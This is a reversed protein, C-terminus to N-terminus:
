AAAGQLQEIAKARSARKQSTLGPIMSKFAQFADDGRATWIQKFLRETQAIGQPSSRHIEAQLEKAKRQIARESPTPGNALQRRLQYWDCDMYQRRPGKAGEPRCRRLWYDFHEDSWHLDAFGAPWKLDAPAAGEAELMARTGYFNSFGLSSDIVIVLEPQDIVSAPADQTNTAMIPRRSQPKYKRKGTTLRTLLGHPNVFQYYAGASGFTEWVARGNLPKGHLPRFFVASAATRGGVCESDDFGGAKTEANRYAYARHGADTLVQIMWEAFILWIM